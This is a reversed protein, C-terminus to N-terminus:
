SNIKCAWTLVGYVNTSSTVADLQYYLGAQGSTTCQFIFRKNNQDVFIASAKEAPCYKEPITIYQNKVGAAITGNEAGEWALTCMNGNRWITIRTGQWELRGLREYDNTLPLKQIIGNAM